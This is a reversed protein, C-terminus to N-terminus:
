VMMQYLQSYTWNQNEFIVAKQGAHILAHHDFLASLRLVPTKLAQNSIHKRLYAHSVCRLQRIQKTPNASVQASIRIYLENFRQLQWDSFHQSHAQWCLILQEAQKMISLSLPFRAQKPYFEFFGCHKLKPLNDEQFFMTDYSIRRHDEGDFPAFLQARIGTLLSMFDQQDVNKVLISQTTDLRLAVDTKINVQAYPIGICFQDKALIHNLVIIYIGLHFQFFTFGAQLLTYPCSIEASPIRFTRKKLSQESSQQNSIPWSEHLSKPSQRYNTFSYHEQSQVSYIWHKARLRCNMLEDFRKILQARRWQDLVAHNFTFFLITKRKFIHLSIRFFPYRDPSFCYNTQERLRKLMISYPKALHQYYYSTIRLRHPRKTRLYFSRKSAHNSVGQKAYMRFFAFELWLQELVVIIQQTKVTSSGSCVLGFSINYSSDFQSSWLLQDKLNSQNSVQQDDHRDHVSRFQKM